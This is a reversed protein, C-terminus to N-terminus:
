DEVYNVGFIYVGEEITIDINFRPKININKFQGNEFNFDVVCHIEDFNKTLFALQYEDKILNMSEHYKIKIGHIMLEKM